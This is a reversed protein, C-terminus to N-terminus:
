TLKKVSQKEILKFNLNIRVTENTKKNLISDILEAASQALQERGVEMTTIGIDAPVGTSFNDFGVISIDEPIKYGKKTLIHYLMNATNDSNCVFATPLKEPFDPEIILGDDNRDSLYWHERIPCEYELMCKYYGMARDMISTTAYIDGVYLIDKHGSNILHRTIEYGGNYNDAAVSSIPLRLDYFDLFMLKDACEEALKNLYRKKFQGVAIIADVKNEMLIKPMVLQKEDTGSLIELIGFYQKKMLKLLIYQYLSWYFSHDELYRECILIGINNQRGTRMAQSISSIKYGMEMAKQKIRERLEESVGDKDALAKSVTVTSIGLEKAIDKMKIGSKM